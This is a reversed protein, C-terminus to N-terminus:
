PQPLANLGSQGDKRKSAWDSETYDGAPIWDKPVKGGKAKVAEQYKIKMWKEEEDRKKKEYEAKKIKFEEPTVKGWPSDMKGQADFQTPKVKPPTHTAISMVCMLTVLVCLIAGLLLKNM